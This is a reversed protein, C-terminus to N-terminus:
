GKDKGRGRELRSALKAAQSAQVTHTAELSVVADRPLHQEGQLVPVALQQDVHVPGPFQGSSVAVSERVGVDLGVQERVLALLRLPLSLDLSLSDVWDVLLCERNTTSSGQTQINTCKIHISYM